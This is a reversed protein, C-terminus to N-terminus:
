RAPEHGQTLPHIKLLTDYFITSVQTKNTVLLSAFTECTIWTDDQGWWALMSHSM